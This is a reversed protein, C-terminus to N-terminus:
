AVLQEKVSGQHHRRREHRGRPLSVHNGATLGSPASSVAVAASDSGASVNATSSGYATTTGYDFHYSTAKGNPAVSGNLTATTM